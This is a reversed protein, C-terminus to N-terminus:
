ARPDFDSADRLEEYLKKEKESLEKPVVIKIEGFMDGHESGSGKPLGKGRLRLKQGSQSGAPISLSVSGDLTYVAVKAGLAAESPTVPIASTVDHGEVRFKPHSAILVKLMLDGREGGSPSPSGQGALRITSGHKVGVPIKVQYKKQQREGSQPDTTTLTISKTGGHFVDELTLKLDATITSGKAPGRSRTGAGGGGFGGAGAGGLGGFIAEFFDSFGGGGGGGGFGGAGARGGAGQGFGSFDFGEFGPPPTFDQGAKWNAGLTDYRQRKDPDKLVEYAESVQKFKEEADATKAVDPHYKRALQRYAKQIEEQSASRAVGLVEYYDQFKVSVQNVEGTSGSRCRRSREQRAM